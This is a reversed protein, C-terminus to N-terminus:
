VEGLNRCIQQKSMVGEFMYIKHHVNGFAIVNHLYTTLVIM